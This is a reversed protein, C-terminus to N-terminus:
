CDTKKIGFEKGDTVLLRTEGNSQMSHPVYAQLGLSSPSSHCMKASYGLVSGWQKTIKLFVCHLSVPFSLSDQLIPEVNLTNMWYMRSSLPM